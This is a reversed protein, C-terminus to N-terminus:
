SVNTSISCASDSRKLGHSGPIRKRDQFRNLLQHFSAASSTVSGLEQSVSDDCVKFRSALTPTRKTSRSILLRLQMNFTCQLHDGAIDNRDQGYPNEIEIATFNLAWVVFLQAFCFVAAWMPNSTWVSTIMPTLIWHLILVTDCVQAYPFPFPIEAIKMANHFAVM